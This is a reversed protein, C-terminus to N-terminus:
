HNLLRSQEKSTLSNFAATDPYLYEVTEKSDCTRDIDKQSAAAIRRQEKLDSLWNNVKFKFARISSLATGKYDGGLYRLCGNKIEAYQGKYELYVGYRDAFGRIDNYGNANQWQAFRKEFDARNIIELRLEEFLKKPLQEM